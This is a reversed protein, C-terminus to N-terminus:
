NCTSINRQQPISFDTKRLLAAASLAETISAAASLAYLFITHKNSGRREACYTGSGRRENFIFQTNILATASPVVTNLAAASTHQYIASATALGRRESRRHGLGRREDM